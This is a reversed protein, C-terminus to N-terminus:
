HFIGVALEVWVLLFLGLIVVGALARGVSSRIAKVALEFSGCAILLMTGMTLFDELGWAVESTLQMAIAPLLLVGAAAGWMAIRWGNGGREGNMEISGAM